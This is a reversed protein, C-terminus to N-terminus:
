TSRRGPRAPLRRLHRQLSAAAHRQAPSTATGKGQGTTTTISYVYGPQVTLSFGGGAPTIDAGRVFHDAPNNSRSTPPGCTSPARHVPRRHRHLQADARGTADMTEIITSYDSSNPSKCALRLQRQQPQRRPLGSASDLYRWGPATFQTTHAMVWANKGISYYGSWPQPAVAVGMTAWPLNPTIAAIIPWNIYATM